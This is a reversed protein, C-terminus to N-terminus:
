MKDHTLLNGIEEDMTQEDLNKDIIKGDVSVLVTFPISNINYLGVVKSDWYKLDSVQTWNLKFKHIAELWADKDKDLSVSLVVFGKGKYKDYMKVVNPLSARCPACWSAWFDILVVKGKFNSLNVTKGNTDPLSIEPAMAGIAVRKMASVKDDFLKVYPSGPYTKTLGSDLSIFLSLYKDPSLQETAALSAFSTLNSKLFSALYRAHQHLLTDYPVEIVKNLSDLRAKNGGMMNARAEFVKQLSDLRISNIKSVNNLDCFLKSDKSGSVDYTNGLFQADGTVHVRETSDLILTAFDSQTIRLIYFGKIIGTTHFSFTGDNGIKTSDLHTTGEQSIRDLYIPIGPGAESLKGTLEFTSSSNGTKNHCAVLAALSSLVVFAKLYKM